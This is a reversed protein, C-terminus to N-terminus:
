RKASPALPKGAQIAGANKGAPMEISKATDSNVGPTLTPKLGPITAVRLAEKNAPPTLYVLDDKKLGQKVVIENDNTTGTEIM